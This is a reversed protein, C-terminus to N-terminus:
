NNIAHFGYIMQRSTNFNSSTETCFWNGTLTYWEGEDNDSEFGWNMGIMNIFPSSYTYETKEPINPVPKNAPRRDYVWEYYNETVNRCRKYRDSIFAHGSIYTNGNSQTTTEARLIVPMNNILSNQLQAVNYDSYTCAIGYPAFVYDVLNITFANSATNGYLMNVRRGIDAILPAAAISSNKMTNWIESTYNTQAWTYSSINGNCYAESPATEPVGIHYHLYYLMQGAAIAVCGAPAQTSNDSKLPCYYNFPYGQHWNTKIMSPISDYVEQWTRTSRLEYHGTFGLFDDEHSRTKILHEKVYEDPSSISKWFAKNNEIENQTFNLKEDPLQKIIAMDEAISQIWMKAGDIQMLREFSGSDSQAVIAPVRTDSSYIVWGKDQTKCVYLLTDKTDNTICEIEPIYNSANSSRTSSNSFKSLVVVDAYKVSHEQAFQSLPEQNESYCNEDISNSCATFVFATLFVLLHNKM